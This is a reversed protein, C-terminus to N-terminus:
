SPDEKQEEQPEPAPEPDVSVGAGTPAGAEAPPIAVPDFPEAEAEVEAPSSSGEHPGPTSPEAVVPIAANADPASPEIALAQEEPAAESHATAPWDIHRAQEELQERLEAPEDPVIPMTLGLLSELFSSVLGLVLGGVLAWLLNDVAFRAPFLFSLLLLILTNVVVVVLGFTVFLFQLTLIQLIPKLLANLIGLMLAMLLWNLVSKDVFYIKPVVAATIALALANVVIRVLLFRWNFQKLFRDFRM